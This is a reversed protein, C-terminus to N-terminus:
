EKSVPLESVILSVIHRVRSFTESSVEGRKTLFRQVDTARIQECMIVSNKSLGGERGDIEVQYRVKRDTGTIPVIVFLYNDAINFWDNSLVLAPRIGAQEAGVTPGFQVDWVDGERPEVPKSKPM